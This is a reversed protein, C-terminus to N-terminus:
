DVNRRAIRCTAALSFARRSLAVRDVILAGFGSKRRRLRVPQPAAVAPSRGRAEKASVSTVLRSRDRGEMAASYEPASAGAALFQRNVPGIPVRGAHDAEIANALELLKKVGADIGAFPRELYRRRTLAPM